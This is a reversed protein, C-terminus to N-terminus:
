ENFAHLGQLWYRIGSDKLGQQLIRGNEDLVIAYPPLTHCDLVRCTKTSMIYNPFDLPYKELYASLETTSSHMNIGVIQWNEGWLGAKEQLEKVLDPSPFHYNWILLLTSKGDTDHFSLYTEEGTITQVPLQKMRTQLRATLADAPCREWPILEIADGYYDVPGLLFFARDVQILTSQRLTGVNTAGLSIPVTDQGIPSLLIYDTGVEDYRQDQDMDILTLRFRTGNAEVDVSRTHVPHIGNHGVVMTAAFDGANELVQYGPLMNGNHVTTNMRLFLAHNGNQCSYFLLFFLSFLTAFRLMLILYQPNLKFVRKLFAPNSRLPANVNRKCHQPM